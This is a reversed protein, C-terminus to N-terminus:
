SKAHASMYQGGRWKKLLAWGNIEPSSSPLGKRDGPTSRPLWHKPTRHLPSDRATRKQARAIDEEGALTSYADEERVVEAVLSTTPVGV